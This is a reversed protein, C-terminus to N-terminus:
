PPLQVRMCIGLIRSLEKGSSCGFSLWGRYVVEGQIVVLVSRFLVFVTYWTYSQWGRHRCSTCVENNVNTPRSPPPMEGLPTGLVKELTTCNECYEEIAKESSKRPRSAVTGADTRPPNGRVDKQITSKKVFGALELVQLRNGSINGSICTSSKGVCSFGRATCPVHCCRCCLPLGRTLCGVIPTSLELCFLGPNKDHAM